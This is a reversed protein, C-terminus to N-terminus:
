FYDPIFGSVTGITLSHNSINFVVTDVILANFDQVVYDM